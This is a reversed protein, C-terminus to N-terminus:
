FLIRLFLIKNFIGVKTVKNWGCIYVLSLCVSVEYIENFAIIKVNSGHVQNKTIRGGIFICNCMIGFPRLHTYDVSCVDM